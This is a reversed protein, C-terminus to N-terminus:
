RREELLRLRRDIDSLITEMDRSHDRFASRLMEDIVERVRAESPASRTKTRTTTMGRTKQTRTAM